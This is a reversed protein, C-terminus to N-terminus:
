IGNADKGAQERVWQEAASKAADITDIHPSSSHRRSSNLCKATWCFSSGGSSLSAIVVWGRWECMAALGSPLTQWDPKDAAEIAALLAAESADFSKHPGTHNGREIYQGGILCTTSFLGGDDEMIMLSANGIRMNWQQDDFFRFWVGEQTKHIPYKSM